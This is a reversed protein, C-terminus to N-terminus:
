QRRVLCSPFALQFQFKFLACCKMEFGKSDLNIKSWCLISVLGVAVLRVVLWVLSIIALLRVLLKNLWSSNHGTSQKKSTREAMESLWTRRIAALYPKPANPRHGPDLARMPRRRCPITELYKFSQESTSNESQSSPFRFRSVTVLCVFCMIKPFM